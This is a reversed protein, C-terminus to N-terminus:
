QSNGNGKEWYDVVKWDKKINTIMEMTTSSMDTNRIKSNKILQLISCLQYGNEQNLNEKCIM